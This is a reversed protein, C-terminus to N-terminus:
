ADKEVKRKQGRIRTADEATRGLGDFGYLVVCMIVKMGNFISPDKSVPHFVSSERTFSPL